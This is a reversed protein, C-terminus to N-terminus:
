RQEVAKREGKHEKKLGHSRTPPGGQGRMGTFCLLVLGAGDSAARTCADSSPRQRM